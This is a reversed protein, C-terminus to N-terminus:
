YESNYLHKEILASDLPDSKIGLSYSKGYASVYGDIINVFGASTIKMPKSLARAVDDHSLIGSFMVPVKGLHTKIVIYKMAM